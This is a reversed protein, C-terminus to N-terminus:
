TLAIVLAGIAITVTGASSGTTVTPSLPFGISFTGSAATVVSWGGVHTATTTAALTYSLGATNSPNPSGSSATSWATSQRVSALENAGTTSPSASHLNTFPSIGAIANAGAAEAAGSALLAQQAGYADAATVPRALEGCLETCIHPSAVVLGADPGDVGVRREAGFGGRGANEHQVGILHSLLGAHEQSRVEILGPTVDYTTGDPVRLQGASHPGTLLIHPSADDLLINFLPNGFEDAGTQEWKLAM